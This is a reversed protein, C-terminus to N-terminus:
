LYPVMRGGAGGATLGPQASTAPSCCRGASTSRGTTPAVRVQVDDLPFARRLRLRRLDREHRLHHGRALGRRPGRGAPRGAAAAGGLLVTKVSAPAAGPTWCAVCSLRCWPFTRAAAPPWCRRASQRCSSRTPAPSCRGSWCASAPSISADAPLVALARWSRRRDPAAVSGGVGDAGGRQAARGEARRDLGVDRHRSRTM